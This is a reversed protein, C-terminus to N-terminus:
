SSGPGRSTDTRSFVWRRVWWVWLTFLLAPVLVAGVVRVWKVLPDGTNEAVKMLEWGGPGNDLRYLQEAQQRDDYFRRFYGGFDFRGLERVEAPRQSPAFWASTTPVSGNPPEVLRAPVAYLTWERYAGTRGEPLLLAPEQPSVRMREVRSSGSWNVLYFEHAPHDQDTTVTVVVPMTGILLSSFLYLILLGYSAALLILIAFILRIVKAKM